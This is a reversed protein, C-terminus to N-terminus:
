TTSIDTGALGLWNGTMRATAPVIATWCSNSNSATDSMVMITSSNHEVITALAM